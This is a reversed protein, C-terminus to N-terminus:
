GTPTNVGGHAGIDLCQAELPECADLALDPAQASHDLLIAVADIDDRLNRRHTRRKAARFLLDQAIVDAMTDFLGNNGAALGLLAPLDGFEHIDHTPGVALTSSEVRFRGGRRPDFCAASTMM